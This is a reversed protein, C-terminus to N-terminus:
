YMEVIEAGRDDEGPDPMWGEPREMGRVIMGYVAMEVKEVCTKVVEMKKSVDGDLSSGKINMAELCSRLLRLDVVMDHHGPESAINDMNLDGVTSGPVKGNTAMSTIAFRMLEGVLDFVGLIYDDEALLVGSPLKKKAGEFTILSQTELYYQFSIAEM